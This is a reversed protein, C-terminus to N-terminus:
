PANCVSSLGAIRLISVAKPTGAGLAYDYYPFLPDSANASTAVLSHTYGTGADVGIHIKMGFFWQNGKKTQHMEPDRNGERNKTSSPAAIITADVITGGHM